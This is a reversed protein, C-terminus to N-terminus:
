AHGAPPAALLEAMKEGPNAWGLTKRPRGNLSDSIRDLEAQDHVSLDTGKPLYQRLLGNTNENSGRQWPSHPDCFYVQIGTESTFRRHASMEAGQDWTLSRALHAPVQGVRDMLADIVRRTSRDTGVRALTVFRTQREVLTVVASRGGAGIILDGEWHGPVARDEVEAPRESINIMGAIRGRNQGQGQPKRAKRATRLEATLQKRLEGRSQVFLSLYITEPSIRMERDDPYDVRLKASIQEPSWRRGLGAEVEALLRASVSLKTPKPRCALRRARREAAFPAYHGRRKGCRGLERGITSRHRGLARAIESDREGAAVRMGIEIREEISLRFGSDSRRRQRRLVADMQARWVTRVSCGLEVAILRPLVGGALREEVLRRNEPTLWRYRRGKAMGVESREVRFVM